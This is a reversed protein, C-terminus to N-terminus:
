RYNWGDTHPDEWWDGWLTDYYHNINQYLPFLCMAACAYSLTHSAYVKKTQFTPTFGVYRQQEDLRDILQM